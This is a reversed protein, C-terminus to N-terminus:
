DNRINLSVESWPQTDVPSPHLAGNCEVSVSQKDVVAVPSLASGGDYESPIASDGAEKIHGGSLESPVGDM